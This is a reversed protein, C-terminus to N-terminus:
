NPQIGTRLSIRRNEILLNITKSKMVPRHEMKIQSKIYSLLCSDFNTKNQMYINMTGFGNTSINDKRGRYREQSYVRWTHAQRNRLEKNQGMSRKM